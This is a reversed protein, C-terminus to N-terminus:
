NLKIMPGMATVGAPDCTVSGTGGSLKASATGSVELQAPTSVKAGTKGSAALKLTASLELNKTAEFKGDETASLTINKKSKVIADETADVTTKKKSKLGIEGGAELHIDGGASMSISGDAGIAINGKTRIEIKETGGKGTLKIENKGDGTIILITGDTKSGDPDDEFVIKHGSRTHWIKKTNKAVNDVDDWTKPKGAAQGRYVSGVVVPRSPDGDLFSVMVSDGTEPIVFMGAGKGAIPQAVRAWMQGRQGAGFFQVQVQGVHDDDGQTMVRAECLELAQERHHSQRPTAGEEPFAEFHNEYTGRFIDMTHSVSSVVYKSAQGVGLATLNVKRAIRVDANSSNGEVQVLHSAWAAKRATLYGELESQSAMHREAFEAQIHTKKAEYVSRTQQAWPHIAAPLALTDTKVAMFTGTKWDETAVGVSGVALATRIRFADLADEAQNPGMTLDVVQSPLQDTIQLKVGDYFCWAKERQALRNVFNFDTEASQMGYDVVPNASLQLACLTGYEGTIVELFTRLHRASDDLPGYRYHTEMDMLITHSKGDLFVTYGGGRLRQSHVDTVLGVFQLSHRTTNRDPSLVTIELDKGLQKFLDDLKAQSGSVQVAQGEDLAHCELSFTAHAGLAENLVLRGLKIGLDVATKGGIKVDIDAHASM